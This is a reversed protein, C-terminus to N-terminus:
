LQILYKDEKFRVKKKVSFYVQILCGVNCMSSYMMPYVLAPNFGSNVGASCCTRRFWLWFLPLMNVGVQVVFMIVIFTFGFFLVLLWCCLRLTLFAKLYCLAFVGLPEKFFLRRVM